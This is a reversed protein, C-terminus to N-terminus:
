TNDSFATTFYVPSNKEWLLLLYCHFIDLSEKSEPAHTLVYKMVWFHNAYFRHTLLRFNKLCDSGSESRSRSFIIKRAAIGQRPMVLLRPLSNTTLPEVKHLLYSHSSKRNTIRNRLFHEKINLFPFTTIKFLHKSPYKWVSCKYNKQNKLL